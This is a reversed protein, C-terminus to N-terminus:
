GLLNSIFIYGSLVVFTLLIITIAAKLIKYKTSVKEESEKQKTSSARQLGATNMGRPMPPETKHKPATKKQEDEEFLEYGNQAVKIGKTTLGIFMPIQEESKDIHPQEGVAQAVEVLGMKSLKNLTTDIEKKNKIDVFDSFMLDDLYLYEDDSFETIKYITSLLSKEDM